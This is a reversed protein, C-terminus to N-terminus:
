VPRRGFAASRPTRLHLVNSCRGLAYWAVGVLLVVIALALYLGLGVFMAAVFMRDSPAAFGGPLRSLRPWQPFYVNGSVAVHSRM